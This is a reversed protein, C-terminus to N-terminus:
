EEIYARMQTFKIDNHIKINFINNELEQFDISLNSLAQHIEENQVAYKVLYDHIHSQDFQLISYVKELFFKKLMSVQKDFEEKTLSFSNTVLLPDQFDNTKEVLDINSLKTFLKDKNSIIKECSHIILHQNNVKEKWCANLQSIWNKSPLYEERRKTEIMNNVIKGFHIITKLFLNEEYKLQIQLTELLIHARTGLSAITQSIKWADTVLEMRKTINKEVYGKYSALLTSPAKVNPTPTNPM